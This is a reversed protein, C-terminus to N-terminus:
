ETVPVGEVFSTPDAETADFSNTVGAVGVCHGPPSEFSAYPLDHLVSGLAYVRTAAPCTKSPARGFTAHTSRCPTGDGVAVKAASKCAADLTFVTAKAGTPLCRMKGDTALAFSCDTDREVDHWGHALAATGDQTVLAGVLRGSGAEIRPRVPLSSTVDADIKRRTSGQGAYGGSSQVAECTAPGTGSQSRVYADSADGTFSSLAHVARIGSCAATEPDRALWFGKDGAGPCSSGSMSSYDNLWSGETCSADKYFAQGNTGAPVCRTVGDAMTQFTCDADLETLRYGLHQRAGDSAALIKESLGDLAILTAEADVFDTWAMPSGVAIGTATNAGSPQLACANPAGVYRPPAADLIPRISGGSFTCTGYGGNLYPTERAYKAGADCAPPVALPNQCAPDSFGVTTQYPIAAPLCRYRDAGDQPVSQFTCEEKRVTDYFGVHERAEGAVVFRARLRTGSTVTPGNAPTNAGARAAAAESTTKSSCASAAALTALITAAMFPRMLPRQHVDCALRPNGHTRDRRAGPVLDRFVSTACGRCM